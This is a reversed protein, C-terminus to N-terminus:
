EELLKNLEDPAFSFVTRLDEISSVEMIDKAANLAILLEERSPKHHLKIIYEDGNNQLEANFEEETISEELLDSYLRFYNRERTRNNIAQILTSRLLDYYDGILHHFFHDGKCAGEFLTIGTTVNHYAQFQIDSGHIYCAVQGNDTDVSNGYSTVVNDVNIINTTNM